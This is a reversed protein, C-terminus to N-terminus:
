RCCPIPGPFGARIRCCYRYPRDSPRTTRPVCRWLSEPEAFSGEPNKDEHRRASQLTIPEERDIITGVDVGLRAEVPDILVGHYGNQLSMVGFETSNETLDLIGERGPGPFLWAKTNRPTKTTKPPIQEARMNILATTKSKSPVSVSGPDISKAAILSAIPHGLRCGIRSCM